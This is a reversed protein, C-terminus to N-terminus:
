LYRRLDAIRSGLGELAAAIQNIQEAEM